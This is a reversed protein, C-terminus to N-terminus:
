MGSFIVASGLLTTVSRSKELMDPQMMSVSSQQTEAKHEKHKVECTRSTSWPGKVKKINNKEGPSM